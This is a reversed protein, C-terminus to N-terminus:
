GGGRFMSVLRFVFVVWELPLPLMTTGELGKYACLLVRVLTMVGCSGEGYGQEAPREVFSLDFGQASMVKQLYKFGKSGRGGGKGGLTTMWPDFIHAKNTKPEIYMFRAHSAWAVLVVKAKQEPDVKVRVLLERFYYAGARHQDSHGRMGKSTTTTFWYPREAADLTSFSSASHLGTYRAWKAPSIQKFQFASPEICSWNQKTKEDSQLYSIVRLSTESSVANKSFLFRGGTRRPNLRPIWGKAKPGTETLRRMWPLTDEYRVDWGIIGDKVLPKSVFPPQEKGTSLTLGASPHNMEQSLLHWKMLRNKNVENHTYYYGKVGHVFRAKNNSRRGNKDVLYNKPFLARLSPELLDGGGLVHYPQGSSASTKECVWVSPTGGMGGFQPPTTLFQNPATTATTTATSKTTTSNLKSLFMSIMSSKSIAGKTPPTPQKKPSPTASITTTTTTPKKGVLPEDDSSSVAEEVSPANSVKQKKSKKHKKHKKHKKYKKSKEKKAKKAKKRKKRRACKECKPTTSPQKQMILEDEDSSDDLDGMDVSTSMHTKTLFHKQSFFFFNKERGDDVHV